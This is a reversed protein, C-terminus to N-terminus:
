IMIQTGLDIIIYLKRYHSLLQKITKLLCLSLKLKDALLVKLMM